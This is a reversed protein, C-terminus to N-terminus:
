ISRSSASWACVCVCRVIRTRCTYSLQVSVCVSLSDTVHTCTHTQMPCTGCVTDDTHQGCLQGFRIRIAVIPQSQSRNRTHQYPEPARSSHPRISAHASAGSDMTRRSDHRMACDGMHAKRLLGCPGPVRSCHAHTYTRTGSELEDSSRVCEWVYARQLHTLRASRRTPRM